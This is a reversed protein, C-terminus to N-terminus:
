SAKSSRQPTNRTSPQYARRAGVLSSATKLMTKLYGDFKTEFREAPFSISLAYPLSGQDIPVCIGIVGALYEERDIAYGQEKINAFEKLLRPLSTITKRTRKTLPHSKLYQLSTEHPAFALLLKGASRAHADGYTGHPIERVQVSNTGRCTALTVIEGNFWGSVYANEGTEDSVRRLVTTLHQLPALQRRFAEALIGIRLGLIYLGQESRTLMGTTVLTHVLHYTAQKPLGTASVIGPGNLGANSQAVAMLINIARAVSQVRPERDNM